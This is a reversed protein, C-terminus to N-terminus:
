SLSLQNLYSEGIFCAALEHDTNAKGAEQASSLSLEAEFSTLREDQLHTPLQFRRELEIAFERSLASMESETGDMNLPLGVVLAQPKHTQIIEAVQHWQPKGSKCRLTTVGSATNTVAQGAALGLYKLGFDFALIREIKQNPSTDSM